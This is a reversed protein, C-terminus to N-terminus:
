KAQNWNYELNQFLNFNPSEAEYKKFWTQVDLTQNLATEETSCSCIFIFLVLFSWSYNLFRSINKKM